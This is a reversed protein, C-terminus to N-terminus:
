LKRLNGSYSASCSLKENACSVVITGNIVGVTASSLSVASTVNATCQSLPVKVRGRTRINRGVRNGRLTALGLVKMSVQQNRDRILVTSTTQKKLYSCGDGNKILSARWTGEVSAFSQRSQSSQAGIPMGQFSRTIYDGCSCGQPLDFPGCGFLNNDCCSPRQWPCSGGGGECGTLAFATVVLSLLVPRMTKGNM